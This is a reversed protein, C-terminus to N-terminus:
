QFPAEEVQQFRGPELDPQDIGTVDLVEGPPGLGVGQIRDPQALEGLPLHEPGAEHWWRRDPLQPVHGAVSGIQDRRPGGFLLPHLLQQLIGLDLERHDGGVDEPHRPPGHQGRQHGALAVGLDQRLQGTGPQAGFEAQQYLRESPAEGVLVGEQQGLHQAPHIGQVGVQGLEVGLDLLQDGAESPRDLPQILDRPDALQSRLQEDGLEPRVHGPERGSPV